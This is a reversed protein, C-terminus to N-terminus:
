ELLITRWDELSFYIACEFTTACFFAHAKRHASPRYLYNSKKKKWNETERCDRRKRKWPTMFIQYITAFYQITSTGNGLLRQYRAGIVTATTFRLCLPGTTGAYGLITSSLFPKEVRVSCQSKSLARLALTDDMWFSVFFRSGKRRKTVQRGLWMEMMRSSKPGM